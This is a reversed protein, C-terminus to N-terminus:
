LPRHTSIQTHTMCKYLLNTNSKLIFNSILLTFYLSIIVAEGTSALTDNKWSRTYMHMDVDRLTNSQIIEQVREGRELVAYIISM